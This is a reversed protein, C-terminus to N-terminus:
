HQSRDHISAILGGKRAQDPIIASVVGELVAGSPEGDGQQVDYTYVGSDTGVVLM